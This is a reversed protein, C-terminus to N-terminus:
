AVLNKAFHCNETRVLAEERASVFFHRIFSPLSSRFLAVPDILRHSGCKKVRLM